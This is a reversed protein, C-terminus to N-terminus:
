GFLDSLPELRFQDLYELPHAFLPHRLSPILRLSPPPVRCCGVSGPPILFEVDEACLVAVIIPPFDWKKEVSSAACEM